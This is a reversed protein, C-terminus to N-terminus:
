KGERVRSLDCSYDDLSRGRESRHALFLGFPVSRARSSRAKPLGLRGYHVAAGPETSGDLQFLVGAREFVDLKRGIGEKGGSVGSVRWEKLQL